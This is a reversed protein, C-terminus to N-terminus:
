LVPNRTSPEMLGLGNQGALTFTITVISSGGYLIYANYRHLPSSTTLTCGVLQSASIIDSPGIDIDDGELSNTNIRHYCQLQQHRVALTHTINIFNGLKSALQKFYKHRAEFRM